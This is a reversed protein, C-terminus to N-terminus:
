VLSVENFKNSPFSLDVCTGNNSYFHISGHFEKTVILNVISLGFNANHEYTFNKGLGVGNDHIGIVYMNDNLTAEVHILKDKKEKCFAYKFSNCILENLVLALSTAKKLSIDIDQIELEIKVNSNFRYLMFIKKVIELPSVTASNSSAHTLIDHISAISRIRQITSDMIGMIDINEHTRLFEKQLALLSIVIQLNNKIRHHSENLLLSRNMLRAMEIMLSIENCFRKLLIAIQSTDVIHHEFNVQLLGIPEGNLAVPMCHISKIHEQLRGQLIDSFEYHFESHIQRGGEDLVIVQDLIEKKLLPVDNFSSYHYYRTQEPANDKIYLVCSGADISQAITKTLQNLTDNMEFSSMFHGAGRFLSGYEDFLTNKYYDNKDKTIDVPDYLSCILEHPNRKVNITSFSAKEVGNSIVHIQDAIRCADEWKSSFYLILMGENKAYTLIKMFVTHYKKILSFTENMILIPFKNLIAWMLDVIKKEERNLANYMKTIPIDISLYDFMQQCLNVLQRKRHGYFRPEKLFINEIVSLENFLTPELPIYAIRDIQAAKRFAEMYHSVDEAKISVFAHIRYRELEGYPDNYISSASGYYIAKERRFIM